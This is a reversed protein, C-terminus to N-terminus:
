DPDNQIIVQLDMHKLFMAQVEPLSLQRDTKYSLDLHTDGVLSNDGALSSLKMIQPKLLMQSTELYPWTVQYKYTSVVDRDGKPSSLPRSTPQPIPQNLSVSNKTNIFTRSWYFNIYQFFNRLIIEGL